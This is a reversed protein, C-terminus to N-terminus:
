YIPGLGFLVKLMEDSEAKSPYRGKYKDTADIIKFLRNDYATRCYETRVVKNLRLLGDFDNLKDDYEGKSKCIRDDPVDFTVCWDFDVLGDLWHAADEPDEAFFCFGVSTSHCGKARHRTNNRLTKGQILAQYERDSMFRHLIM